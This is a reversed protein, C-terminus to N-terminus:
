STPSLRVVPIRRETREAYADYDPWIAAMLTWLRVRSDESATTATADMVEAGVQIQVQRDAVLNHYWDPHTDAGGKSAVVIYDDGDQGYILPATHPEGTRRGTTTLLLTFVGDRWEHGNEGGTERYAQVHEDGFLVM